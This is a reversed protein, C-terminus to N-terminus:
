LRKIDRDNDLMVTPSDSPKTLGPVGIEGRIVLRALWEASRKQQTPDANMLRNAVDKLIAITSPSLEADIQGTRIATSLIREIAAIKIPNELLLMLDLM